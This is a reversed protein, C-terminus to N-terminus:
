PRRNRLNRALLRKRRAAEQTKARVDDPEEHQAGPQIMANGGVIGM